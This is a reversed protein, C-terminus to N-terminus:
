MKESLLLFPNELYYIIKNVFQAVYAGDVARHDFSVSLPLFKKLSIKENKIFSTDYIRGLGIIAIEPYNIIPTSYKGGISGYNTITISGGQLDDLASKGSRAKETKKTIEIALTLISKQGALKINPVLLGNETATALSINYYKKFIIENSQENLTANMLPFQKLSNILAKIVFPLLTLHIGKEKYEKKLDQLMTWLETIDADDQHTVHPITSTFLKMQNAILMRMMTMKLKEVQGYKEFNESKDAQVTTMQTQKRIKIQLNSYYM